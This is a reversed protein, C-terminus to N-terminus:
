HKKACVMVSTQTSPEYSSRKCELTEQVNTNASNDASPRSSNIKIIECMQITFLILALVAIIQGVGNAHKGVRNRGFRVFVPTLLIAFMAGILYIFQNTTPRLDDAAILFEVFGAFVFLGSIWFWFTEKKIYVNLGAAVAALAPFAYALYEALARSDRNPGYVYALLGAFAGLTLLCFFIFPATRVIADLDADRDQNEPMGAVTPDAISKMEDPLNANSGNMNKRQTVHPRRVSGLSYWLAKREGERPEPHPPRARLRWLLNM